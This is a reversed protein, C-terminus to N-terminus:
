EEDDPMSMGKHHKWVTYDSDTFGSNFEEFMKAAEEEGLKEYAFAGFSQEPPEMDAYNKYSSVIATTSKGGTRSFWLWNGEWGENIALQSMKKRANNSAEGGGQKHTWTTAGYYPGDGEGEPWHSNEWDTTEFYRHYHDVYQDVNENWNKSLGKEMSDAEYTDQDAWDFCCARFQIPDLNHGIAVTYANWSRTDGKKVRYAIDDTVAKVFKDAMGAKPVVIWVETLSPPAAAEEHHDALLSLPALLAISATISTIFTTRKM